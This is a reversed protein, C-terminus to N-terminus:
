PSELIKRVYYEVFANSAIKPRSRKLLVKAPELSGTEYLAVAAYFMVPEEGDLFPSVLPVQAAGLKWDKTLYAAELLAKRVSRDDPDTRAAALLRRKADPAKGDKLLTRAEALAAEVGERPTREAAPPAPAAPTPARPPAATTAEPPATPLPEPLEGRAKLVDARDRLPPPVSAFARRAGTEDRAAALCVFLDAFLAPESAFREEPLLRLDALAPAYDRRATKGQAALARADVNAGDLALAKEAWKVTAKPDGADRAERALALPWDVKRPDRKALAELAKRREPAPLKALRKEETEVVEAFAPVAALAEASVRARLLAELETRVAPDVPASAWAPFRREVDLLRDLTVGTEAARGLAHQTLALLALARVLVPPQELLGFSAIRLEEAADLFLRSRYAAEGAHLRALYFDDPPGAAPAARAAGVGIMAALVFGRVLRQVFGSGGRAGGLRPTGDCAM